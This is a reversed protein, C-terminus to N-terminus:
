RSRLEMKHCQDKEGQDDPSCLRTENKKSSGQFVNYKQLRADHRVCTANHPYQVRRLLLQSQSSVKNMGNFCQGGVVSLNGVTTHVGLVHGDGTTM